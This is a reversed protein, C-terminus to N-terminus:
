SNYNIGVTSSFSKLKKKKQNKVKNYGLHFYNKEFNVKPGFYQIFRSSQINLWLASLLILLKLLYWKLHIFGLHWILTRKWISIILYKLLIDPFNKYVIKRLINNNKWNELLWAWFKEFFQLYKWIDLDDNYCPSLM